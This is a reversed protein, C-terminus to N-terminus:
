SPSWRTYLILPVHSHEIPACPRPAAEALHLFSLGMTMSYGSTRVHAEVLEMHFAPAQLAPNRRFSRLLGFM